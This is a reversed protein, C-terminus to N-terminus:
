AGPLDLEGDLIDFLDEATAETLDSDDAHPTTATLQDALARLRTALTPADTPPATTLTSELRTLEAEWPTTTTAPKIRQAVYAAVDTATPYDFILTAPLRLGTATNLANRLEVATLSDFGLEGFARDPEIADASTHGLASAIQTRVVELIAAAADEPSLGAIRQALDEARPAGAPTRRRAPTPALGRLLAPLATGRTRLATADTRLPVTLSESTRLSADFLTLAEERTLAPTGARSMRDLDATSLDAALGADVAWLGFALSTAPLGSTRRHHALADLFVNAAAYNGQGAAMVLGGASSFLAFVTLDADATLEHLHWAADAKAALVGDVQDTTLAGVLGNHAVGAAHVVGRLPPEVGSLLRALDDRDSVDCAAITVTAGLATLEDRLAAAGPADPGRRSTLLLHRVDHETVLHRAVLAGLGGTGGTILVTGDPDFVPGDAPADLRTLRPVLLRGARVAVEPEGASLAGDVGDDTDILVFRGPNEAEAARVLGWVPAQRVDVDEAADTAVAGRTVVALTSDAYRDDALFAQVTALLRAINTRVDAPPDATPKDPCYWVCVPPIEDADDRWEAWVPATGDAQVPQWAVQLLADTGSALQAESVPRSLLSEVTLVPNGHGDAVSLSLGDQQAVPTLSVRLTDAGAAHLTVGNWAFPLLTRGGGDRDPIDLLGVHMAADLLAPHLGFRAADPQASEPLSVEAYLADGDRWAAKLGQFVPGYHYGLGALDPYASEVAIPTAGPPPWAGPGAPAAEASPALVGEAHRTWPLDPQDDPRSHVTVTRRGDDEAEGALVQLAVGGHTPLILPAHLTLEELVPCGTHEGAQLALEVFGTGPLLVSGLVDHDTIWPHTGGSIRGTLVAGADGPLPVAARLLPHDLAVQGTDATAPTTPATMWYRTRQFPYTPLDIRHADTAAFYAPWDVRAGTVHLNAVATLLTDPEPRDKRCSPVAVTVEDLIQQTLGTLIGDPGLELFRSVGQDSLTQVADSFRVAQRVQDVWYAPSTWGSAVSGTVTSVASLRPEEYSVSEAVQAFEALMPEMLPSHFAHSVSLRTTKRGQARFYEGIALAAAEEGSVVVSMPSNVAALSVADSLLPTVEDESAQVAVMAGGEPLAQMLRGRAAVLRAADELSFVGAVHAAALEGISHGAVCDARVGWSEVLRYLAVEVAFLAPQAFGTGNLVGPDEGWVVDRLPRALHPDVAGSVADFASAFGPYADYLERGMGLRQAGQGTFLVATRGARVRGVVAAPHVEGAAVAAVGEASFAVARHEMAVRTTALSFGLDVSSGSVAGVGAAQAALAGASKGSLVWPVVPLSGESSAASTSAVEEVIVHANTGSLGFASVGARRPRGEVAWDRAATLLRVEGAAWDVQPSAAEAHLTPPLVGHRMAMVMKIIGAVGAAAQTHGFNSKVSGLWLPQDASRGQGYTALLAQAEIPDGLVTGTGHAEVADVELPSLGADALAARIVRQQAPGNPATLGNSAGDQNLASGRVVALVPHGQARADSLRELLLVGAGEGWGTGDADAGFAKCRGDPSLGRQESFYVLMDATGMVTVGGALALSCEGTRLAQAAMHLAVLSSSCATDVTVAPGELGLTYSVRGSVISGATGGGYDHYMVGAYVGTRSGKLTGPDIGARELAEWSTELLLRQQPDMIVAERPSIGFFEADFEAADYLFGGARTYTKGPVGPEPDYLGPDWGRDDPLPAVADTGEAVLRWLEEPSSVGGPFRCAMGVIVIPDDDLARTVAVPAAPSDSVGDLLELIHRSVADATPYDFILTAPLRLGTASDLQNRLEVATLSDFGLEDFARGPEIEGGSAHGLVAAVKARVVELVAEAREDAGLGAVRSRLAGAPARRTGTRRVLGSLLVPPDASLARLDFPVPVLAARGSAVGADFLALGQEASVAPTGAARMRETEGAGLGAATDWLGFALSTAPLGSARRHVALADLFANAAAYNAQGTSGLTGALSSFLVFATLPLERTLEHLVWAADAKPRRVRELRAADLATIMGDDLVGAAHVVGRLSAGIGGVLSALADRDAVDCAAVTVSAGLSVLEDRLEVAGPAELGRRSTLVLDRVGHRGVLHRAVLAGLGGTGGTILVTGDADWPVSDVAAPTRVLRPVFVRGERVAVEPEGCGLGAEFSGDGDVLRFRGPHEAAAARVLGWVPAQRVAVDEGELVAVARRTVVALTAHAFREETLWAQVVGLVREVADDACSLVVLSPVAEDLAEWDGWEGPGDVAGAAQWEVHYLTEGGALQASSVARAVVGGVSAVPSGSEDAIELALQGPAPQTLRVRLTGAGARHVVVDRWVFPLLTEGGTDALLAAHMAADLLAPHLGFRGADGQAAEPLSVEAYLEGGRRWAARLGQFVSGYELGRDALTDYVGDVDLAEAGAPLWAFPAPDAADEALQGEAHLTWEADPRDEARSHIRVSRRGTDDAPGAVVQVAVGGKPSLILPAHLALEALRPCGAEAGARLAMEVLGSGPCLVVGQVVHDALWPQAAVSLRGTLVVGGSDALNVTAGLLPHQGATQGTLSVADVWFRRRQFAYTPLDVRRAGTGAFYMRWDIEAGSVQLRGVAGALAETEPLKKTLAPIATVESSLIQQTLGTLIGDPGIELFRSVGQGHLTQIADSFRVAQRVQDVWYAPSAWGSAVSGTVTSVAALRPEAYSVSEAVRRFEALMPEMLPSHFAHSVALRTTKRGQAKFREGIALAGAEEGSVVVSTPSNVAALSVADSLLPTVEDESAQVAVMAGGEPLAQMLRGRAAVLRAADELSFVGAVHAAALEGISHGAVCDARVGWSEVLRYLAVEVAFLAPQAFGTGELVAADEGWVVDRLPRVLHPDVAACVADFVEAFVPFADYLERGMGVRQSGQGTFLLATRGARARGVTVGVPDGAALSRLARVASASDTATVCARHELHARGTALTYAVDAPSFDPAADAIRAAQGALAEPTHASLVWPVAAPSVSLAEEGPASAQEVIVHANTGSLGFSSIGARRPRDVRPWPRGEGLLEIAGAEWDVKRSPADLHLTPPLEGHQIALIMKIVGAIGAAAQTHGFNSKISGLLLPRDAPRGRGYTALLAQAEIPDGLVTGTGHAEVADVDAASLGGDALAARIVRQQSPGNPTTMSSSAGDQNVATGRVLALVPHGNARADSLRELLIVGAGEGWGTGDAADAFSKCRGDPALGKQSSFYVLMDPTSMVTAGGALALTCDGRRLADAALHIAVLSSSCATDVTLAPGELGLTYATRGSVFSGASGDAYDHYMVGAYVGTRSGKLSVPDIGAREIAEWTIELLLRQQPDMILAERPSIGFFAADFEAAEHLFSGDRAYTKGPLGPEPDYIGPSWGRDTPFGTVADVGDAVLRWLAEPTDAGGPYRCAMGVVAIPEHQAATLRANEQRLRENDTLSKRLAEVVKDVSTSM